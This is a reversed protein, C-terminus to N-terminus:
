LRSPGGVNPQGANWTPNVLPAVPNVHSVPGRGTKSKRNMFPVCRSALRRLRAVLGGVAATPSPSGVNGYCAQNYSPQQQQQHMIPVSHSVNM